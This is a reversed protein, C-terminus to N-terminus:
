NGKPQEVEETVTEGTEPDTFERTETDWALMSPAYKVSPM